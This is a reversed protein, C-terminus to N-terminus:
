IRPDIAITPHNLSPPIEGPLQTSENDVVAPKFQVAKKKGKGKPSKSPPTQVPPAPTSLGTAPPVSPQRSRTGLAPPLSLPSDEQTSVPTPRSSAASAASPVVSLRSPGAALTSPRLAASSARRPTHRSPVQRLLPLSVLRGLRLFPLRPVRPPHRCLLAPLPSTRRLPACLITGTKCQPSVAVSLPPRLTRPGPLLLLDLLSAGLPTPPVSRAPGLRALLVVPAAIILNSRDYVRGNREGTHSLKVSRDCSEDISAVEWRERENSFLQWLREQERLSAKCASGPEHPTSPSLGALGTSSWPTEKVRKASPPTVEDHASPSRCRKKSKM